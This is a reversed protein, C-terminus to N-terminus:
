FGQHHWTIQSPRNCVKIKLKFKLKFTSPNDCLQRSYLGQAKGSADPQLCLHPWPSPPGEALDNGAGVPTCPLASELFCVTQELNHKNVVNSIVRTVGWEDASRINLLFFFIRAKMKITTKTKKKGSKSVFKKNFFFFFPNSTKSYHLEAPM